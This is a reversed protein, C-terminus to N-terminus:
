LMDASAPPLGLAALKQNLLTLLRQKHDRQLATIEAAVEQRVAKETKRYQIESLIFVALALIFMAVILPISRFSLSFLISTGLLLVSALLISKTKAKIREPVSAQLAEVRRIVDDANDFAGLMQVTGFFPYSIFRVTQGCASVSASYEDALYITNEFVSFTDLEASVDKQQDGPLSKEAAAYLKNALEREARWRAEPCIEGTGAPTGADESVRCFASPLLENLEDNCTAAAASDSFVTSYAQWDTVTRKKTVPVERYENAARDYQRKTETYTEERDYGISAQLLVRGEARSVLVERKRETIESFDCSFVAEPPNSQALKVWADRLFEAKTQVGPLAIRRCVTDDVADQEILFLTGCSNCRCRVSTQETINNSGCQPCILGKLEM